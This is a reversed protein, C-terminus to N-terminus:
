RVVRDPALQHTLDVEFRVGAPPPLSAAAPVTNLPLHSAAIRLAPRLVRCAACLPPNPDDPNPIAARLSFVISLSGVSQFGHGHLLDTVEDVLDTATKADAPDVTADLQFSFWDDVSAQQFGRDDVAVQGSGPGVAGQALVPSGVPGPYTGLGGPVQYRREVSVVKGLAYRQQAGTPSVVGVVL